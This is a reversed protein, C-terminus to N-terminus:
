DHLGEAQSTPAKDSGVEFSKNETLLPEGYTLVSRGAPTGCPKANSYGTGTDEMGIVKRHARYGGEIIFSTMSEVELLLCGRGISDSM